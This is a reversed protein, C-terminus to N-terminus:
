SRKGNKNEGYFYVGLAYGTKENRKLLDKYLRFLTTNEPLSEVKGDFKKGFLRWLEDYNDYLCNQAIEYDSYFKYINSGKDLKSIIKDFFLWTNCVFIVPSNDFYDKFFESAKKYCNKVSISDLKKGSKPIHVKLVKDGRKLINNGNKYEDLYTFPTKEFQLVGFSFFNLKFFRIYWSPTHVGWFGYLDFTEQSKYKIDIITDFFLQESYGNKIFNNFLKESLILFVVASVTFFHEGLILSIEKILDFMKDYDCNINKEYLSLIIQLIETAKKDSNLKQKVEIYTTKCPKSFDCKNLVINFFEQKEM